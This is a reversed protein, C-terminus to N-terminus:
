ARLDKIKRVNNPLIGSKSFLKGNPEGADKWASKMKRKMEKRVFDKDLHITDKTIDRMDTKHLNREPYLERLMPTSRMSTKPKRPDYRISSKALERQQKKEKLRALQEEIYSSKDNKNRVTISKNGNDLIRKGNNRM